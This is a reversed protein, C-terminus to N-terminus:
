FLILRIHNRKNDKSELMCKMKYYVAIQFIIFCLMYVFNVGQRVMTWSGGDLM